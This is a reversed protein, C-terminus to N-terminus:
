APTHEDAPRPTAGRALFEILGVVLLAVVFLLLVTGIGPQNWLVLVLIALAAVVLELARRHDGVFQELPTSRYGAEEAKSRAGSIGGSAFSRAKVAPASPGVFYAVIAVIIAVVGLTIVGYRLNRVLIDFVASAAAKSVNPSAAASLYLSRGIALLVLTFGCAALLVLAARITARRRTRVILASLAFAGIALVPLVSSLTDLIGLYTRAESLGESNIINVTTSVPPVHIGALFTLGAKVLRGQVKTVVQSLDLQVQGNNLAVASKKKGPDDTLLAVLETHAVRNAKDWLAQFQSSALLKETSDTAYNQIAGALPAGLFKARKPLASEIRHEANIQHFLSNVVVTAVSKQIDPNSALPSVTDVYRDTNTLQNHSWIAIGSLPVLIFGIVLLVVSTIKQWRKTTKPNATTSNATREPEDATTVDDDSMNRM